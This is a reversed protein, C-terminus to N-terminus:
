KGLALNGPLFCVLHDMKPSFSGSSLEGVFTLNNPKTQRVLKERVGKLAALWDELLYFYEDSKNYVAGHQIWQKLLYEYYSDGRAGLTIIHNTFQGSQTDIFIPVLGDPKDLNHIIQSVKNAVQSFRIDGTLNSLDNFEIQLTAVESTSSDASWNPSKALRRAKLIQM